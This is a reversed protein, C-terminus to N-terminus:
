KAHALGLLLWLMQDHVAYADNVSYGYTARGSGLHYHEYAGAGAADISKFSRPSFRKSRSIRPDSDSESALKRAGFFGFRAQFRDSFPRYLDQHGM